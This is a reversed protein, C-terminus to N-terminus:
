NLISKLTDVKFIQQSIGQFAITISGSKLFSTSM